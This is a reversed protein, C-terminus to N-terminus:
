PKLIKIMREDKNMVALDLPTIGKLNSIDAKAGAKILLDASRHQGGEVANHLATIQSPYHRENLQAGRDILLKIVSPSDNRAADCLLSKELDAGRIILANLLVTSDYLALDRQFQKVKHGPGFLLVAVAAYHQNSPFYSAASAFLLAFWVTFLRHPFQADKRNILWWTGVFLLLAVNALAIAAIVFIFGSHVTGMWINVWGYRQSWQGWIENYVHLGALLACFATPFALLGVIIRGRRGLM